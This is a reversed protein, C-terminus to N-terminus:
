EQSSEYLDNTLRPVGDFRLVGKRKWQFFGTEARLTYRRCHRKTSSSPNSGEVEEIGNFREGLQAVAGNKQPTPTGTPTFERQRYSGVLFDYCLSATIDSTTLGQNPHPLIRHTATPRAIHGWEGVNARM